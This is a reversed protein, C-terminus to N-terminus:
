KEKIEGLKELSDHLKVEGSNSKIRIPVWGKMVAHPHLDAMLFSFYFM